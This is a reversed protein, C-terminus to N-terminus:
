CWTQSGSPLPLSGQKFLWPAHCKNGSETRRILFTHRPMQKMVVRTQRSQMGTNPDHHTWEGGRSQRGSWKRFEQNELSNCDKHNQCFKKSCDSLHLWITSYNSPFLHIRLTRLRKARNWKYRVDCKSCCHSMIIYKNTGGLGAVVQTKISGLLM